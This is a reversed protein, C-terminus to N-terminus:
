KPKKLNFMYALYISFTSNLFSMEEGSFIFYYSLFSGCEYRINLAINGNDTKYATGIGVGLGVDFLNIYEYPYYVTKGKNALSDSYMYSISSLYAFYPGIEFSGNIKKQVSFTFKLIAPIEIYNLNYKENVHYNKFDFGKQIYLLEPQFSFVKGAKFNFAVGFPLHVNNHPQVDFNFPLFTSFSVGVKPGMSPQAVTRLQLFSITVIFLLLIKVCIIKM